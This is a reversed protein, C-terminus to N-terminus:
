SALATLEQDRKAIRERFFKLMEVAKDNDRVDGNLYMSLTGKKTAHNSLYEKRDTATIDEKIAVLEAALRERQTIKPTETAM